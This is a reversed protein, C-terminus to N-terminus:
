LNSLDLIPKVIKASEQTIYARYYAESFVHSPDPFNPGMKAFPSISPQSLELPVDEGTSFFKRANPGVRQSMGVRKGWIKGEPKPRLGMYDALKVWRGEQDRVRISPSLGKMMYKLVKFQATLAEDDAIPVRVAYPPCKPLGALQAIAGKLWVRYEERYREPCHFLVHTHLGLKKGVEWVYVFISPFGRHKLFKNSLECLKQFQPRAEEDSIDLKPWSITLFGNLVYGVRNAYLVSEIVRVFDDKNITESIREKSSSRKPKCYDDPVNEEVQYPLGYKKRHEAIDRDLYRNAVDRYFSLEGSLEQIKENLEGVERFAIDVLEHVEKVPDTHCTARAMEGYIGGGHLPAVEADNIFYLGSEWMLRAAEAPDLESLEHIYDSHQHHEKEM